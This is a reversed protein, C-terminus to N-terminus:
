LKNYEEIIQELDNMRLVCTNNYYLKFHMDGNVPFLYATLKKFENGETSSTLLVENDFKEFDALSIKHKMNLGELLLISM